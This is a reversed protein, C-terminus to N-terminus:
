AVVQRHQGRSAMELRLRKLAPGKDEPLAHLVDLAAARLRCLERALDAAHYELEQVRFEAAILSGRRGRFGSKVHEVM